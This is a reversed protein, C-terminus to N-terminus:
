ILPKSNHVRYHVNPNRLIGVTEQGFQSATINQITASSWATQKNVQLDTNEVCKGFCIRTAVYRRM